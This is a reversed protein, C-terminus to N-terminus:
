PDLQTEQLFTRLVIPEYWAKPHMMLHEVAQNHTWQNQEILEVFELSIGVCQTIISLSEGMAAPPGSRYYRIVDQYTACQPYSALLRYGYHCVEEQAEASRLLLVAEPESTALATLGLYVLRNAMRLAPWFEDWNQLLRRAMRVSLNSALESWRYLNPFMSDIGDLLSLEELFNKWRDWDLAKEPIHIEVTQLTNELERMSLWQRWHLFQGYYLEAKEICRQFLDKRNAFYAIMGILSVTDAIDVKKLQAEQRFITDFLKSAYRIAADADGKLLAIRALEQVTEPFEYIQAAQLYYENAIDYNQAHQHAWGLSHYGRALEGRSVELQAANRELYTKVEAEYQLAEDHLDYRCLVSICVSIAYLSAFGSDPTRMMQIMERVLMLAHESADMQLHAIAINGMYKLRQPNTPNETRVLQEVQQFYELACEEGRIKCMAAGLSNGARIRWENTEAANLVDQWIDRAAYYNRRHFHELGREWLKNM